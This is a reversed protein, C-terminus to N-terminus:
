DSPLTAGMESANLEARTWAFGTKLSIPFCERVSRYSTLLSVWPRAFTEPATDAGYTMVSSYVVGASDGDATKKAIAMMDVGYIVSTTPLDDMDFSVSNDIDDSTGFVYTADEDQDTENVLSFKDSGTSPSWGTYIGDAEPFLVAVRYGPSLGVLGGETTRGDRLYLHSQFIDPHLGMYAGLWYQNTGAQTDVTNVRLRVLWDNELDSRDGYWIEFAGLNVDITGQIGFSLETTLPVADTTPGALLDGALGGKRIRLLGTDDITCCCHLTKLHDTIGSLIVEASPYADVRLSHGVAFDSSQQSRQHFWLAWSGEVSASWADQGGWGQGSVVISDADIDEVMLPFNTTSYYDPQDRLLEAM